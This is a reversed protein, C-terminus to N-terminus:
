PAPHSKSVAALPSELPLRRLCSAWLGRARSDHTIRACGRMGSGAGASERFRMALRRLDAVRTPGIARALLVKMAKPAQITGLTGAVVGRHRKRSVPCPALGPPPEPVAGRYCRGKRPVLTM